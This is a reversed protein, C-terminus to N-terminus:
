SRSGPWTSRGLPLRLRFTWCSAMPISSVHRISVPPADEVAM